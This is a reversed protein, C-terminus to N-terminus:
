TNSACISIVVFNNKM